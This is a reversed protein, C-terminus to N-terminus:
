SNPSLLILLSQICRWASWLTTTFKSRPQSMGFSAYRAKFEQYKEEALAKQPVLYIARQGKRATRVAAMEGIFTKGSSTPSAIVANGGDLVKGERVALAQVPLLREHGSKSRWLDLINEELGYAELSSIRM